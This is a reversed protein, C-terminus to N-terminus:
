SIDELGAMWQGLETEEQSGLGYQTGKQKAFETGQAFLPDLDGFQYYGIGDGVPSMVGTQASQAINKQGIDQIQKSMTDLGVDYKAKATGLQSKTIGLSPMDKMLEKIQYSSTYGKQQLYENNLLYQQLGEADTLNGEEDYFGAIDEYKLTPAGVEEVEAPATADAYTVYSGKDGGVLDNYNDVGGDGVGYESHFRTHLRAQRGRDNDADSPDGGKSWGSWSAGFNINHMDAMEEAFNPGMWYPAHYEKLGTEPNTTGAGGRSELLSAEEPTIHALITDGRRGKKALLKALARLITM